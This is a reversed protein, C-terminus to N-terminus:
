YILFIYLNFCRVEVNILYKIVIDKLLNLMWEFVCFFLYVKKVFLSVDVDILIVNLVVVNNFDM